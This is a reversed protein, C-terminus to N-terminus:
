GLAKEIGANLQSSIVKLRSSANTGLPSVVHVPLGPETWDPLIRILKGSSLENQCLYKPVFAIGASQKAMSLLSTMMNAVIKPQIAVQITEKNSQLTWKPRSSEPSYVLCDHNQLDQPLRIAKRGNLYNPSAVPILVIEGLKKVKFRSPSLKGIRIAFDYGQKVLDLIEDTYNLEFSLDPYQLSMKAILPSIIHAGLDEPATIRLNGSVINDQGHLLRMSDELVQIADMTREYFTLGAATPNVSRTTRVLLKTGTQQELHSISRSVTSKPLRLLNAAKSFSAMQVVKVFIRISEVEM